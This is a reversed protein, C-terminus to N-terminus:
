RALAWRRPFSRTWQTLTWSEHQHQTAVARRPRECCHEQGWKEQRSAQVVWLHQACTVCAAVIVIRAVFRAFKASQVQLCPFSTMGIFKDSGVVSKSWVEIALTFDAVTMGSDGGTLSRRGHAETHIM